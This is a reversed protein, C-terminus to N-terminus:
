PSPAAAAMFTREYGAIWLACEAKRFDAVASSEELAFNMRQDSSASYTPWEPAGDHNPDGSKAFNTWYRQMLESASKEADGFSPSTQFVYVLEAGHTAGLFIPSLEPNVPIDFNYTFVPTHASALLATDTTTCVLRSDGAVRALAAQAPNPMAGEFKSLPYVEKIAASAAMFQTMLAADYQAETTIPMGATFLTGEDTNSGLMYPVKNIRGERYLTRPQEPLFDGDVIPGLTRLGATAPLSGVAGLLTAVDKERLCDLPADGACDVAAVLADATAAAQEKTTMTTTCGGSQSIAKHFLGKSKPSAVHTCVDYSGASEGFITVNKPDGGFKAVNAKVWELAAVQDWMGQNGSPMGTEEDLAPHALFGFVGLRYNLTVVVVNKEALKSGDYFYLGNEPMSYPVLESASGNVNGGGHIWVMVPLSKADTPAWVNLYLCDEDESAPNMLVASNAQACRKGWQTADRPKSWKEPKEPRKWRLEGVPPKAYPIGLFRRTKGAVSGLLEGDDIKVKAEGSSGMPSSGGDMRTMMVGADRAMSPSTSADLFISQDEEACGLLASLAVFGFVATRQGGIVM